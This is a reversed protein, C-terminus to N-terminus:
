GRACEDTVLQSRYRGPSNTQKQSLPCAKAPGPCKLFPKPLFFISFQRMTVRSKAGRGASQSLGGNEIRSCRRYSREGPPTRRPGRSAMLVGGTSHHSDECRRRERPHKQMRDECSQAECGEGETVRLCRGLSCQPHLSSLALGALLRTCFSFISALRDM